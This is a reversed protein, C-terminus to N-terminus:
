IVVFSTYTIDSTARLENVTKTPLLSGLEQTSKMRWLGTIPAAGIFSAGDRFLRIPLEICPLSSALAM